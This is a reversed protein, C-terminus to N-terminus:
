MQKDMAAIAATTFLKVIAAISGVPSNYSQNFICSNNYFQQACVPPTTQASKTQMIAESCKALTLVVLCKHLVDSIYM